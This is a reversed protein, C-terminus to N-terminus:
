EILVSGAKDNWVTKERTYYVIGYLGSFNAPYYVKLDLTEQIKLMVNLQKLTMNKIKKWLNEKIKLNGIFKECIKFRITKAQFENEVKKRQKLMLKQFNNLQEKQKNKCKKEKIKLEKELVFKSNKLLTLCVKLKDKAEKNNPQKKIMIRLETIAHNFYLIKKQFDKTKLGINECTKAKLYHAKSFSADLGLMEKCVILAEDFRNLKLLCLAKNSHLLKQTPHLDLALQYEKLAEEFSNNKFLSRGNSRHIMSQIWQEKLDNQEIFTLNIPFDSDKLLQLNRRLKASKVGLVRYNVNKNFKSKISILLSGVQLGLDVNKQDGSVFLGLQDSGPAWIVNLPHGSFTHTIKKVSIKREKEKKFKNKRKKLYILTSLSVLALTGMLWYKHQFIISM